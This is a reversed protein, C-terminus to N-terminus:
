GPPRISRPWSARSDARLADNYVNTMTLRCLACRRSDRVPSRGSLRCTRARRRRACYQQVAAPYYGRAAGPPSWGASGAAIGSQRDCPSISPSPPGMKDQLRAQRRTIAALPSGGRDVGPSLMRRSAPPGCCTRALDAAVTRPIEIVRPDTLFEALYRRVAGPEPADPTGLNILLVGIKPPQVPPHDAPRTM